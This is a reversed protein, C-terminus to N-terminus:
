FLSYGFHLASFPFGLHLCLYDVYSQRGLLTFYAVTMGIRNRHFLYLTNKDSHSVLNNLSRIYFGVIIVKFRQINRRVMRRFILLISEIDAPVNQKTRLCGTRLYMLHLFSFQWDTHQRGSPYETGILHICRMRRREMLNFSKDNILM